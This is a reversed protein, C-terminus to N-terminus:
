IQTLYDPLHLMAKLCVSFKILMLILKCLRSSTAETSSDCYADADVKYIATLIEDPSILRLGRARLIVCLLNCLETNRPTLYCILYDDALRRETKTIVAHLTHESITPVAYLEIKGGVKKILQM